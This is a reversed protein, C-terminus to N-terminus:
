TARYTELPAAAAPSRPTRWTHGASSPSDAQRILKELISSMLTPAIVHKPLEEGETQCLIASTPGRWRGFRAEFFGTM